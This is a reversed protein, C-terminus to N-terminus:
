FTHLLLVHPELLISIRLRRIRLRRLLGLLLFNRVQLLNVSLKGKLEALEALAEVFQHEFGLLLLNTVLFQVSLENVAPM